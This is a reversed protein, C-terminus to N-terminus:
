KLVSLISDLFTSSYEKTTKNKQQKIWDGFSSCKGLYRSMMYPMHANYSKDKCAIAFEKRTSYAQSLIHFKKDQAKSYTQLKTILSNGFNLIDDMGDLLTSVDDWKEELIVSLINRPSSGVNSRVHSAAVYAANKVKVRNMYKDIVVIGENEKPNMEDVFKIMEEVSSLSYETPRPLLVKYAFHNVESSSLEKGTFKNRIGLLHIRYTKYPIVVINKPTTLEFIFCCDKNLCVTFDDFCPYHGQTTEILAQDFLERFTLDDFGNLVQDAEPVSRTSVCWKNQLQDHYLICCTGDLKSQFKASAWDIKSAENQGYNFFRFFPMSIVITEGVIEKDSLIPIGDKRALILGRCQCALEDDNKSEIQSYNLSFKIRGSNGFGASVGHKEELDSFSHNKLFEQVHIIISM